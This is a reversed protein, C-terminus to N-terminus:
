LASGAAEGGRVLLLLAVGRRGRGLSWGVGGMEGAGGREWGVGAWELRAVEEGREVGGCRRGRVGMRRGPDVGERRRGGVRGM